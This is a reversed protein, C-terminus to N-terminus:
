LLLFNMAAVNVTSSDNTTNFDSSSYYTDGGYINKDKCFTSNFTFKFETVLLVYSFPFVVMITSIFIFLLAILAYGKDGADNFSKSLLFLGIIVVINLTFNLWFDISTKSM